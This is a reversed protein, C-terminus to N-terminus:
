HSRHPDPNTPNPPRTTPTPPTIDPLPRSKNNFTTLYSPQPCPPVCTQTADPMMNTTHLPTRKCTASPVHTANTQSTSAYLTQSPKFRAKDPCRQIHNQRHITLTLAHKTSTKHITCTSYASLIQRRCHRCRPDTHCQQLKTPDKPQHPQTRTTPMPPTNDHLCRTNGQSRPSIVQGGPPCYLLRTATPMRNFWM